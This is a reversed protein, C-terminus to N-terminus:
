LIVRTIYGQCLSCLFCRKWCKTWQQIVCGNGLLPQKEPEVTRAKLLHAMTNQVSNTVSWTSIQECSIFEKDM